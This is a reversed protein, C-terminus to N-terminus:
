TNEEDFLACIRATIDEPILYEGPDSDALREKESYELADIFQRALCQSIDGFDPGLLSENTIETVIVCHSQCPESWMEARITSRDYVWSDYLSAAVSAFRQDQARILACLKELRDGLIRAERLYDADEHSIGLNDLMLYGGSTRGLGEVMGQLGSACEFASESVRRLAEIGEDWTIDPSDGAGDDLTIEEVKGPIEEPEPGKGRALAAGAAAAVLGQLFGRRSLKDTM